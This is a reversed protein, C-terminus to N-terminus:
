TPRKRCVLFGKKHRSPRRPGFGLGNRGNFSVPIGLKTRAYPEMLLYPVLALVGLPLLARRWGLRVCAASVLVCLLLTALFWILRRDM